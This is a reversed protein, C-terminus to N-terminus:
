AQKAERLGHELVWGSSYFYVTALIGAMAHGFATACYLIHVDYFLKLGITVFLIKCICQGFIAIYMPYRVNGAGRCAGNYIHSYNIFFIGFLAFRVMNTGYYVAEQDDSFRSVLVPALIAIIAISLITFATSIRASEKISERARDYKQAGLNQAVLSMTANSVSVSFLQAWNAVKEGVGIGAIVPYPFENVRSQVLISGIAILMNQFGAPIGLRCIELVTEFSFEINKFDFDVGEYTLMLRLALIDMTFQSVITAIATGIVNLHFVRVLLVGLIINIISSIISYYLQHKTDGFSRLIFFCMQYTLVATNGLFYVRLYEFADKYIDGTINCIKMLFPLFLESLATIIIGGAIGFVIATDLTKKLNHSDQAGYYKAILIGAGMGLGYFAYNFVNCLWTTASVASLAKLSVYNGVILSNTINYLESFIMSIFIPWSFSFILKPINGETLSTLKTKAM